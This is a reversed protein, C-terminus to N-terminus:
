EDDVYRRRDNIAAVALVVSIVWSAWLLLTRWDRPGVLTKRLLGLGAIVASIFSGSLLFRRV